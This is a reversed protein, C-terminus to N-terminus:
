FIGLTTHEKDDHSMGWTGWHSQLNGDPSQPLCIHTTQLTALLNSSWTAAFLDAFRLFQESSAWNKITPLIQPNNLSISWVVLSQTGLNPFVVQALLCGNMAVFPMLISKQTFYLDRGFQSSILSFLGWFSARPLVREVRGITLLACCSRGFRVFLKLPVLNPPYLAANADSSGRYMCTKTLMQGDTDGVRSEDHRYFM